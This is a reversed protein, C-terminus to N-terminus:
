FLTIVDSECLVDRYEEEFGLKHLEQTAQMSGSSRPELPEHLPSFMIIYDEEERYPKRMTASLYLSNIRRLNTIMGSSANSLEECREFSIRVRIASGFSVDLPELVRGALYMPTIINLSIFPCPNDNAQIHIKTQYFRTLAPASVWMSWPDFEDSVRLIPPLPPVTKTSSDSPSQQKTPIDSDTQCGSDKMVLDTRRKRKRRRASRSPVPPAQRGEATQRIDMANADSVVAQQLRM